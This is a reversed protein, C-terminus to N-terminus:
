VLVGYSYSYSYFLSRVKFYFSPSLSSLDWGRKRRKRGRVSKAASTSLTSAAAAATPRAHASQRPRSMPRRRPCTSALAKWLRCVAADARTGRGAHHHGRAHRGDDQGCGAQAPHCPRRSPAWSAAPQSSVISPVTSPPACVVRPWVLVSGLRPLRPSPRGSLRPPRCRCLAAAGRWDDLRCM